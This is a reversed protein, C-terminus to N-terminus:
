LILLKYYEIGLAQKKKQFLDNFYASAVQCMGETSEIVDGNENVLSKIANVKKRVTASVHFFRTNLDGDKYWHAKARQKWFLDDKVLLTILRKKLASFYNLNGESIHHRARDLKKCISDIEKRVKHWNKQSWKLMDTGCRELKKTIEAYECYNWNDRVFETFGPETLWATEFKFTRASSHQVTPICTLMVPYHDSSAATLCELKAGPFSNSWESNMM